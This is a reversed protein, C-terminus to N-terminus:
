EGSEPGSETLPALVRYLHWSGDFGKLERLGADEFSHTSGLLIDRMSATLLIEDASGSEEVRAAPNVVAGSVDDGRDEVEGAHLGVRIRLGIEGLESRLDLAASVALSPSNFTCLIGDGTNKIITGAHRIVVDRSARDHEDLLQRWRADGASMSSETSEVIDTFMVVAFRREPADVEIGAIFSIQADVIEHWNPALWYFHDRGQFERLTSNPMM